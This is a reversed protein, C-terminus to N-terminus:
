VLRVVDMKLGTKVILVEKMIKFIKGSFLEQQPITGGDGLTLFLGKLKM